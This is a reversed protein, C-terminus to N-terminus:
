LSKYLYLLIGSKEDNNKEIKLLFVHLNIFFLFLDSTNVHLM